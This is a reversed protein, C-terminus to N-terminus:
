CEKGLALKGNPLKYVGSPEIVPDGIQWRRKQTSLKTSEQTPVPQVDGTSYSPLPADNPRAPLGGSGTVFFSGNQQNRRAICSNAILANTNIADEPLEDLNNKVFSTDPLVIVGSVAASANIDVRNNRDLTLPNTGPPAPRYNQGFFAPTDFAINGGKGDQAFALIDSDGFALISNATLKIDGGGGAGGAVFTSIDSNGLLFINGSTINVAGGSSEQSATFISGDEAILLKDARVNINGAQGQNRSITSIVAGDRINLVQTKFTIDGAKATSGRGATLSIVASLRENESFIGQLEVTDATIEVNGARGKGFSSASIIGGNKVLLIPTIIVLDGADGTSNAESIIKSLDIVQVERSANITLNSGKGSGNSGASITGEDKVFLIPTNINLNGANGSQEAVSFLGGPQQSGTGIIQVSESANITLNAGNGAGFSGTSIQAGDKILLIPTNVILNGANGTGARASAALGSVNIGPPTTGILQVEKFADVILNGANGSGLTVTEARAGDQIILVPTKIMLDGANGTSKEEVRAFLGSTIKGDATSGILKILESASVTLNGGKGSGFTSTSVQAVDSVTLIPTTITLNGADGEGANGTFLRSNRGIVEVLKSATVNLNGGQGSNITATELYGGNKVTLAGANITMAGADGKGISNTLIGAANGQGDILLSEFANVTLNGGKGSSFTSADINGGNQVLLIPTSITLNGANGTSLGNALTLLASSQQTEASIGTIKVLESANITVFGGNGKNRTSGDIRAGDEVGLVPTEITINGADGSGQTESFLGSWNITEDNDLVVGNLQVEKTANVILHGGKGAGFTGVSIQAGDQVKLTSTNIKVDGAQGTATRTAQSGIRSFIANLFNGSLEVEKSANVILNGGKGSSGTSTNILGGNKIQLIPTTIVVNGANGTGESAAYLGSSFSTPALASTGTVRVYESANITLNGGKASGSTNADIRAGDAVLLARTNITLHGADGTSESGSSLQSLLFFLGNTSEGILQVSESANITLNGGKGGGGTGADIQAGEEVLLKSTDITLNGANGTGITRSTLNTPFFKNDTAGSLQVSKSANIILNGGKGSNRSGVNIQAGDKLLLEQTNITTDGADGTAQTESFLGSPLRFDLNIPLRINPATGILQVSEFANINLNGGKGAGFVGTSIQAGDKVILTPTNITMDGGKGTGTRSVQVNISSNDDGQANEGIVQVSESANVTLGGGVGNGTLNANIYSGGTVAINKGQVQVAGGSNGTTRVSAEQSLLIDQFNNVGEYNLSYATGRSIINVLSNSAVSGLEIRGSPALLTGGELLINGGVLGLTRGPIVELGDISRNVIEGQKAVADFFLASPNISLARPVQPNITSFNGQNGFRIEKATTAYFSGDIDLRANEGFIIGNPNMLFLNANSLFVNGNNIERTGLVGLIDSRNSGTVRALINQISPDFVIFYAGRNEAVNFERFSHFLNQGRQAGGTILENPTNDFNPIVESAESGLTNDPVINIQAYAPHQPAIFSSLLIQSAVSVCGLLFSVSLSKIKNAWGNTKVKTELEKIYILM